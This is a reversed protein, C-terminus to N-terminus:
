IYNITMLMISFKNSKLWNVKVDILQQDYIKLPFIRNVTVPFHFVAIAEPIVKM